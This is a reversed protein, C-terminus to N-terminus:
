IARQTIGCALLLRRRRETLNGDIDCQLEMLIRNIDASTLSSVDAVQLPFGEVVNGTTYSFLPKLPGDTRVVTSNELRVLVNRDRARNERAIGDVSQRLARFGERQERQVTELRELVTQMTQLVALGGDIAPLHGVRDVHDAIDRLSGAVRAFDPNLPSDAMAAPEPSSVLNFFLPGVKSAKVSQRTGVAYDASRLQIM